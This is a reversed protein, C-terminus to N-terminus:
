RLQKELECADQRRAYYTPRRRVIRFDRRLFLDLAALNSDATCLSLLQAGCALADREAAQMLLGGIGRGRARETVALALIHARRGSLELLVMGVQAGTERAIWTRTEPRSIESLTYRAPQGGYESFAQQSLEAVFPADDPLYSRVLVRADLRATPMM